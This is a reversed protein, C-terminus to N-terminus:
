ARASLASFTPGHGELIRAEEDRAGIMRYFARAKRTASRVGWFM